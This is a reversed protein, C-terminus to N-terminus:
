ESPWVFQGVFVFLSVALLCGSTLRARTETKYFAGGTLWSDKGPYVRLNMVTRPSVLGIVGYSAVAILFANLLAFDFSMSSERLGQGVGARVVDAWALKDSQLLVVNWLIPHYSSGCGSPRGLELEGADWGRTGV